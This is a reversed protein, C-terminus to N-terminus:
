RIFENENPINEWATKKRKTAIFILKSGLITILFIFLSKFTENNIDIITRKIYQVDNGPNLFDINYKSTGSKLYM